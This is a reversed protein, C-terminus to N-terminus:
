ARPTSLVHIGLGRLVPALDEHGAYVRCGPKSVREIARIVHEGDPGYRM